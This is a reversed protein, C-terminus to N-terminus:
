LIAGLKASAEQTQPVTQLVAAIQQPCPADTDGRGRKTQAKKLQITGTEGEGRNYGKCGVGTGRQPSGLGDTQRRTSAPARQGGVLLDQIQGRHIHCHHEGERGQKSVLEQRQSKTRMVNVKRNIEGKGWHRCLM